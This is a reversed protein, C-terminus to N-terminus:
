REEEPPTPRPAQPGERLIEGFERPEGPEAKPGKEKEEETPPPRGIVDSLREELDDQLTGSKVKDEIEKKVGDFEAQTIDGAKKAETLKALLKKRYAEVAEEIDLTEEITEAASEEMVRSKVESLKGEAKEGAEEIEEVGEVPIEKEMEAGKDEALKRLTTTKVCAKKEEEGFGEFAYDIWARYMKEHEPTGREPVEKGQERTWAEAHEQLTMEETSKDEQAVQAEKEKAAKKKIKFKGTGGEVDQGIDYETIDGTQGKYAELGAQAEEPTNYLTETIAMGGPLREDQATREGGASLDAEIQELWDYYEPDEALHDMAIEEAIGLDETHELEVMVGKALQESSFDEPEKGEALGGPIEEKKEATRSGLIDGIKGQYEQYLDEIEKQRADPESFPDPEEGTVKGEIRRAERNFESMLKRIEPHKEVFEGYQAQMWRGYYKATSKQARSVLHRAFFGKLADKDGEDPIDEIRDRIERVSDPSPEDSSAAYNMMEDHLSRAVDTKLDLEATRVVVTDASAEERKRRFKREEAEEIEAEMVESPDIQDVIEQEHRAVFEDPMQEGDKEWVAVVRIEPGAAPEERTAPSGRSSLRVDAEYEKGDVTVNWQGRKDLSAETEKGKTKHAEEARAQEAEMVADIFRTEDLLAYVWKEAFDQGVPNGEADTIRTIEIEPPEPPQEWSGAFGPSLVDAYVLYEKGDIDWEIEHAGAAQAVMEKGKMKLEYRTINSDPYEKEIMQQLAAGYGEPVVIEGNTEDISKIGIGYAVAHERLEEVAPMPIVTYKEDVEVEAEHVVGTVSEIGAEKKATELAATMDLLEAWQDYDTIPPLTELEDDDAQEIVENAGDEIEALVAEIGMSALVEKHIEDESISVKVFREEAGAKLAEESETMQAKLEDLAVQLEQIMATIQDIRETPVQAKREMLEAISAELNSRKERERKIEEPGKPRKLDELTREAEALVGSELAEYYPINPALDKVIDIMAELEAANVKAFDYTKEMFRVGQEETAIPLNVSAYERFNQAWEQATAAEKLVGLDLDAVAAEPATEAGMQALFDRVGGGIEDILTRGKETLQRVFEVFERRASGFGERVRNLWKVFQDVTYTGEAVGQLYELAKEVTQATREMRGAERRMAEVKRVVNDAADLQKVLFQEGTEDNKELYWVSGADFAPDAGSDSYVGFGHYKARQFFGKIEAAEAPIRMVDKMGFNRPALNGAEKKEVKKPVLKEALKSLWHPM